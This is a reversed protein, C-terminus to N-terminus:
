PAVVLTAKMGPHYRCVVTFTGATVLTVRVRQKPKIEVDFGADKATATHLFIDQNSWDITDGIRVDTPMPGFAMKDIVVVHVAAPRRGSAAEASPRSCSSAIMAAGGLQIFMRRAIRM